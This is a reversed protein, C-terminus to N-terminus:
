VVYRMESREEDERSGLYGNNPTTYLKYIIDNRYIFERRYISYIHTHTHTYTNNQMYTHLIVCVRVCVNLRKTIQHKAHIVCMYSVCACVCTHTHTHIHWIHMYPFKLVGCMYIYIHLPCESEVCM